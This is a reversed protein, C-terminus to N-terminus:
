NSFLPFDFVNYEEGHKFTFDGHNWGGDFVSYEESHKFTFHGHSGEKLLGYICTCYSLSLYMTCSLVVGFIVPETM